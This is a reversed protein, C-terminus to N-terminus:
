GKVSSQVLEDLWPMVERALVDQAGLSACGVLREDVMLLRTTPGAEEFASRLGMELESELDARFDDAGYVLLLPIQRDLLHRIGRTFRPDRKEAGVVSKAKAAIMRRYRARRKSDKLKSLTLKRLSTFWWRWSRKVAAVQKHDRKVPSNVLAVGELGEIMPAAALSSWGGFCNAVILLRAHGQSALWDRAALIEESNPAALDPTQYDGESEGVGRYDFRFAYFGSEALTSAWRARLRNRGSSPYAGAGWPVMVTHGNPHSPVTLIGALALSGCPFFVPREEIGDVPREEIGDVLKDEVGTPKM